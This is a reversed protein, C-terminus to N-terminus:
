PLAWGREQSADAWDFSTFWITDGGAKFDANGLSIVEKEQNVLADQATQLVQGFSLSVIGLACLLLTFKKM